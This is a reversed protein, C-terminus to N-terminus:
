PYLQRIREETLGQHCSLVDIQEAISLAQYGIGDAEGCTSTKEIVWERQAKRMRLRQHKPLEKWASNLEMDASYFDAAVVARRRALITGSDAIAMAISSLLIQPFQLDSLEVITPRADDFEVGFRFSGWLIGKDTLQAYGRTTVDKARQDRRIASMAHDPIEFEITAKCEILAFASESASAQIAKLDIPISDVLAELERTPRRPTSLQSHAEM